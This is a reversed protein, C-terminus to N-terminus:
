FLDNHRNYTIAPAYIGGKDLSLGELWPLQSPRSLANAAHEWSVLDRSHYVPVGPFYGFTSTVLWYDDGKRTISPDSAWGSIVPNYYEGPAKLEERYYDDDGNYTFHSFLADGAFAPAGWAVLLATFILERYHTM